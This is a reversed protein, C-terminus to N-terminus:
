RVSGAVVWITLVALFDGREGAREVESLWADRTDGPPWMGVEAPVMPNVVPLVVAASAPTDFVLTIPQADVATLGARVLRGRLTRGMDLQGATMQGLMHTRVAEALDRPMGDFALSLWDTDILCIRGGPRTVRIFEGIVRDPEAVHQLVRECWVGDVSGDGLDLRSVDGRVYDVNGGDHRSRAAEITAASYDLATVGGGPGALSALQRAVEGGGCGADLLRMGAGAELADFGARRVRLIEPHRAMRALAEILMALMPPPAQDLDAFPTSTATAAHDM